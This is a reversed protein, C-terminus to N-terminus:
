HKITVSLWNLFTFFEPSSPSFQVFIHIDKTGGITWDIHNFYYTKYETVKVVVYMKKFFSLKV